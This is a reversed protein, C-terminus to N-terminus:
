EFYDSKEGNCIKLKNLYTVSIKKEKIQTSLTNPYPYFKIPNIQSHTHTLM